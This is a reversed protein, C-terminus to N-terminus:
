PNKRAALLATYFTRWPVDPAEFGAARLLDLHDEVRLFPYDHRHPKLPKRRPGTFQPRINRYRQEWDGNAGIHDLNFLFGGPVLAGHLLAYLGGVRERSFHHLVRSTVIVETEGLTLKEPRELDAILYEVRDGFASLNEEALQRMAESSDIWTGRADPFGRLFLELYRGPGSGLDVVRRVPIGADAVLAASIRRPLDLMNAVVDDGAWEAVYDASEWSELQEHM